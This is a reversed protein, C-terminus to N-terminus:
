ALLKQLAVLDRVVVTPRSPLLKEMSDFGTLVAVDLVGGHRATEVDHVMDGVFMTESPELAHTTLIERIKERKDMIEVYAVEFFDRVGLRGAQEEFHTAKITSLLFMRRGTGRCFELFERAGPLLPIEGQLGFFFREYLAELGETTAEPLLEAYFGSFPLRFHHRFEDLTLDRRGYENFILNTARLVASLDDALTGSWDLLINRIM